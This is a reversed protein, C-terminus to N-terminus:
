VEVSEVKSIPSALFPDFWGVYTKMRVKKDIRAARSSLFFSNREYLGGKFIILM